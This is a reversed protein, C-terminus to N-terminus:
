PMEKGFKNVSGFLHMKEMVVKLVHERARSMPKRPDVLDGPQKYYSILENSVSERLVRDINIKAIGMQIARHITEDPISSGGHLVVPIYITEYLEKLTSLDINADRGGLGPTNGIQVAVYDIQTLKVFEKAEEPETDLVEGVSEGEESLTRGIQGEVHVGHQHGVRVVESVIRVNEEFNEESADIMVSDYGSEICRIAMDFTGHDLHVYVPIKAQKKAEGVMANVYDLGFHNLTGMSTGVIVPSSIKEAAALTGQLVELSTMNFQGIAWHKDYAEHIYEIFTKM